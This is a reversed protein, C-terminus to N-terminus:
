LVILEKPSNTLNVIEGDVVAVLDEIRVGFRDDLYIGPEVSLVNGNKLIDTSKPSFNPSEHIEIGVSHGLSHTFNAGFGANEIVDRAIKDAASCEMGEFIGDIAAKQASLVTDYVEKQLDDPTGFIVTRTMDSCYGNYVCGFDLTLFDGKEIVKDSARGHPMCSRVGSAAITDFSTKVAGLKRMENEILAAVEIESMGTSIHELAYLFAKDGIEEALRIKEIETKDKIRRPADIEKQKGVFEKDCLESLRAYEGFSVHEEEFAIKTKDIKSFIEKWGIRIDLLEFGKAEEKAQVFYRSDTIIFRDSDSLILYADESTFGSYYFVNPFSSILFATDGDASKLLKEARNHM